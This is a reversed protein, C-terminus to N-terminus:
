SSGTTTSAPFELVITGHVPLGNLTAPAFVTKRAAELAQADYTPDGSSQLLRVALVNGDPGVEVEVRVPHPPPSALAIQAPQLVRVPNDDGWVTAGNLTDNNGGTDVTAAGAGPSPTPQPSNTVAPAEGLGPKPEGPGRLIIHSLRRAPPHISGPARHGAELERYKIPAFHESTRLVIKPPSPPPTPKPTPPEQASRSLSVISIIQAPVAESQWHPAFKAITSGLTFHLVASLGLCVGVGLLALRRTRKRM